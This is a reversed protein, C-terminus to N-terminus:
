SFYAKLQFAAMSKFSWLTPTPPNKFPHRLLRKTALLNWSWKYESVQTDMM